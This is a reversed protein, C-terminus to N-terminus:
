RMQENMHASAPSAFSPLSPARYFRIQGNVKQRAVFRDCNFEQTKRNQGVVLWRFLSFALFRPCICLSFFDFYFFIAEFRLGAAEIRMRIWQPGLVLPFRNSFFSPKNENTRETKMNRNNPTHEVTHKRSQPEHGFHFHNLILHSKEKQHEGRKKAERWQFIFIPDNSIRPKSSISLPKHPPTLTLRAHIETHTALGSSFAVPSLRHIYRPPM